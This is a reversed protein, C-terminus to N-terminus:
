PTLRATFFRIGNDYLIVSSNKDNIYAYPYDMDAPKVKWAKTFEANNGTGANLDYYGFQVDFCNSKIAEKNAFNFNDNNLADIYKAVARRQNMAPKVSLTIMGIIEGSLFSYENRQNFHFGLDNTFLKLGNKYQSCFIHHYGLDDRMFGHFQYKTYDLQNVDFLYKISDIEKQPLSITNLSEQVTNICYESETNNQECSLLCLFLLIGTINKITMNIIKLYLHM